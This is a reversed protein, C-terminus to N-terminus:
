GTFLHSCKLGGTLVVPSLFDIGVFHLGQTSLEGQSSLVLRKFSLGLDKCCGGDRLLPCSVGVESLLFLLLYLCLCEIRSPKPQLSLFYLNLWCRLLPGSYLGTSYAM